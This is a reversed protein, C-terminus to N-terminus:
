KDLPIELLKVLELRKQVEDAYKQKYEELESKYRQLEESLIRMRDVAETFMISRRNVQWEYHKDINVLRDYEKKSIWM